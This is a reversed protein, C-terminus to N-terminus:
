KQKSMAEFMLNAIYILFFTNLLFSITAESLFYVNELSTLTISDLSFYGVGLYISMSLFVCYLLMNDLIKNYIAAYTLITCMITFLFILWLSAYRIISMYKVEFTFLIKVHAIFTNPPRKEYDTYLWIEHTIWLGMIAFFLLFIIPWVFWERSSSHNFLFIPSVSVIFFSLVWNVVLTFISFPIIKKQTKYLYISGIVALIIFPILIDSPCIVFLCSPIFIIIDLIHSLWCNKGSRAEDNIWSYYIYHRFIEYNSFNARRLIIHLRYEVFDLIPATFVSCFLPQM